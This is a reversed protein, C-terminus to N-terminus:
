LSSRCPAWNTILFGFAVVVQPQPELKEAQDRGTRRRFGGRPPKKVDAARRPGPVPCGPGAPGRRRHRVPHKGARASRLRTGALRLCVSGGPGAAPRSRRELGGGDARSPRRPPGDPRRQLRRRRLGGTGEGDRRPPSGRRRGDARDARGADGPHRTGALRARAGTDLLRAELWQANFLDRGTSKPPPLAFYPEALLADLLGRTSREPHRGPAAQTSAGVRPPRAGSTSCRTPRAATSASPRATPAIASLNAIGGLNLVATAEGPRSFLARHFAPVLPAGQGGAAVDRSRFDAVVDIGCLEALLAPANIQVTYGIGDFEGPRHRVTQGHCGVATVREARARCRGLLSAVVEAYARALRNGALAVRHIEDEGSRNLALLESRLDAAFEVHQM